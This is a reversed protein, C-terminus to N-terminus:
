KATNRNRLEQLPNKKEEIAVKVKNRSAPTMGMETLIRLLTKESDAMIEYLPNKRKVTESNDAKHDITYEAVSDLETSLNKVRVFTKCLLGFAIEDTDKLINNKQLQEYWQAWVEKEEDSLWDVADKKLPTEIFARTGHRDPRFTGQKQLLETSKPKAGKSMKTHTENKLGM